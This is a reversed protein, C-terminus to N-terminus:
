ASAVHAAPSSEITEGQGATQRDRLFMAKGNRNSPFCNLDKHFSNINQM